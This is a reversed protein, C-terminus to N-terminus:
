ISASSKMVTRGGYSSAVNVVPASGRRSEAVTQRGATTDFADMVQSRAIFKWETMCNCLIFYRNKGSMIWRKETELSFSACCFGMLRAQAPSTEQTEALEMWGSDFSAQVREPKADTSHFTDESIEIKRATYNRVKASDCEISLRNTCREVDFSSKLGCFCFRVSVPGSDVVASSGQIYARPKATISVTTTNGM